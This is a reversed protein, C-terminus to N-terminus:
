NELTFMCLSGKYRKGNLLLLSSAANIKPKGASKKFAVYCRLRFEGCMNYQHNRVQLKQGDYLLTVLRLCFQGLPLECNNEICESRGKSGTATFPRVNLRPYVFHGNRHSFCVQEKHNVLFLFCSSKARNLYLKINTLFYFKVYNIAGVKDITQNLRIM